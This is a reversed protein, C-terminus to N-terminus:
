KSDTPRNQKSAEFSSVYRQAQTYIEAPFKMIRILELANRTNAPGEKIKYDFHIADEYIQENFHYNKFHADLTFTLEIDHTAAIMKLQHFQSLYELVSTSAAIREATNTGKFIEDIFYYHPSEPHINLLRKLSKIEAMFYSDGTLVDDANAMATKVVGPQFEFQEATVTNIAQALILNIATAKMFTSKGSANSGTLLVSYDFDFDNPVAENVLPHVLSTFHFNKSVSPTTCHAQHHRWQDVALLADIEGVYRYCAHITEHNMKFRKVLMHYLHIDILFMYKILLFIYGPITQAKLLLFRWRNVQNLKDLDHEFNPTLQLQNIKNMTHIIRGTFFLSDVDRDVYHNFRLSVIYNICLSIPLAIISLEIHWLALLISLIPLFSLVYYIPHFRYQYSQWDYNPYTQKGLKALLTVLKQHFATNEKISEWISYHSLSSQLRLVHYLHNEGVSTYTFNLAKFMDLMNLDSWTKDDIWHLPSEDQITLDTYKKYYTDYFAFSREIDDFKFRYKLHAAISKRFQIKQYIETGIVVTFMGIILILFFIFDTM